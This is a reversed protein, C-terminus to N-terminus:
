EDGVGFDLGDPDAANAAKDLNDYDDASDSVKCLYAQVFLGHELDGFPIVTYAEAVYAVGDYSVWVRSNGCADWMVHYPTFIVLKEPPIGVGKRPTRRNARLYRSQGTSYRDYVNIVARTHVRVGHAPVSITVPSGYRSM